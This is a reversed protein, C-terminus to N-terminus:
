FIGLAILFYDDRFLEAVLRNLGLEIAATADTGESSAKSFVVSQWANRSGSRLTLEVRISTELGQASEQLQMEVVKGELSMPAGAEGLKAGSTEFAQTFTTQLLAAITQNELTLPEKGPRQIDNAGSDSRGDTFTNVVLPGGIISSLSVGTDGSYMYDLNIAESAPSATSCTLMSAAMTVSLLFSKM